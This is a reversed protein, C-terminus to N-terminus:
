GYVIAAYGADWANTGIVTTIRIRDLAGALTKGGSTEYRYNAGGGSGGLGGNCVWTDSGIDVLDIMGHMVHTASTIPIGFGATYGSGTTGVGVYSGAGIYGTTEVGASTGLQILWNSTGNTSLGFIGLTIRKVWSPINEFDLVTNTTLGNWNFAKSAGTTITSEAMVLGSGLTKNTLTQAASDLVFNGAADPLVLTRNTNTAPSAITFTGTGTANGSLAVNSM